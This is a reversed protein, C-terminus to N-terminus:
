QSTIVLQGDAKFTIAYGVMFPVDDDLTKVTGDFLSRVQVVIHATGHTQPVQWTGQVPGPVIVVKPNRIISWVPTGEIRDAIEKGFPCGTPLLVQQTACKKLQENLGKQIQSVFARNAQITVSAKTTGGAATIGVYVPKATFLTSDNGLAYLGPTLVQQASVNGPASANLQLGNVTFGADNKPTIALIGLPSTAFIWGSFLGMRTGDRKVEFSTAGKAGGAGTGTSMGYSYTVRHVGGGEDVDSVLRIDRLEGLARSDLLNNGAKASGSVATPGALELAASVDHRSLAALYSATFGAASYLTANLILVTAAFAVVVLGTLVTWTIAARHHRM